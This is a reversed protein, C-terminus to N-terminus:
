SVASIEEFAAVFIDYIGNKKELKYDVDLRCSSGSSATFHFPFVKIGAASYFSLTHKGPSTCYKLHYGAKYNGMGITRGDLLIEYISDVLPLKHRSSGLRIYLVVSKSRETERQYVDLGGDLLWAAFERAPYKKGATSMTMREIFPAMESKVRETDQSIGSISDPQRRVRRGCAEDLKQIFGESRAIIGLALYEDDVYGKEPLFNFGWHILEYAKRLASAKRITSRVMLGGQYSAAIDDAEYEMWESLEKYEKKIQHVFLVTYTTFLAIQSKVQNAIISRDFEKRDALFMKAFQSIRYVSGTERISEQCYHGFEHYLITKLEQDSLQTLFGLGLVLELQPHSTWVNKFGPRIFVAAFPEPCLYIHSPPRVDLDTTVANVLGSLAPLESFSCKVFNPPLTTRYSWAKAMDWLLWIGGFALFILPRPLDWGMLMMVTLGILLLALLVIVVCGLVYWRIYRRLRASRERLEQYDAATM